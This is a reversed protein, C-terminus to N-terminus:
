IPDQVPVSAAVAKKPAAPAPNAADAKTELADSSVGVIVPVHGFPIYIANGEAVVATPFDVISRAATKQIFQELNPNEMWIRPPIILIYLSGRVAVILMTQGRTPLASFRCDLKFPNAAVVTTRIGSVPNWFEYVKSAGKSGWLWPQAPSTTIKGHNRGKERMGVICKSELTACFKSKNGEVYMSVARCWESDQSAVVLYPTSWFKGMDTTAPDGPETVIEVNSLVHDADKKGEIVNSFHMSIGQSFQSKHFHSRLKDREARHHRALKATLVVCREKAKDFCILYRQAEKILAERQSTLGDIYRLHSPFDLPLTFTAKENDASAILDSLARCRSILDPVPLAKVSMEKGFKDWLEQLLAALETRRDPAKGM